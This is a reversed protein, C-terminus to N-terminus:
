VVALPSFQPLGCRLLFSWIGDYFEPPRTADNADGVPVFIIMGQRARTLLVRYSNLLYSQNSEDNIRQWRSGKFAFTRWEGSEFRLNADWCVCTWDLELGQVDFETAVDELADSSRVDSSPKLFWIPPEIKAKVFVGEPKLRIANSSAVLGSRENGRRKTRIWERADALNRTILIPYEKLEPILARAAEEDADILAGM